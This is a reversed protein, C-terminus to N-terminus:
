RAPGGPRSAAPRKCPTPWSECRGVDRIRVYKLASVSESAATTTVDITLTNGDSDLSYVEKVTAFAGAGTVSTGQSVLTRGTWSSTMTITGGQGIPTATTGGPHYFRAHGENIPSEVILTGNAPQTIHLMPPAGAGILGALGAHPTIRSAAADLKWTGALDPAQALLSASAVLVLLVM